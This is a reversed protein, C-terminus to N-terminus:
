LNRQKLYHRIATNLNVNEWIFTAYKDPTQKGSREGNVFLELEPLNSFINVAKLAMVKDIILEM